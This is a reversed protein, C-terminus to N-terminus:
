HKSLDPKTRKGPVSASGLALQRGAKVPPPTMVSSGVGRQRVIVAPSSGASLSSRVPSSLAGGQGGQGKEAIIGAAVARARATAKIDATSFHVALVDIALPRFPHTVRNHLAFIELVCNYSKLAQVKMHMTTSSEFADLLPHLPQSCRIFNHSVDLVRLCRHKSATISRVLCALGTDTLLNNSLYLETLSSSVGLGQAINVLDADRVFCGHLSLVRLGPLQYNFYDCLINGTWLALDSSFKGVCDPAISEVYLENIRPNNIQVTTVLAQLFSPTYRGGLVRVQRISRCRSLAPLLDFEFSANKDGEIDRFILAHTKCGYTRLVASLMMCDAAGFSPGCLVTSQELAQKFQPIYQPINPKIGAPRYGIDRLADGGGGLPGDLSQSSALAGGMDADDVGPILSTARLPPAHERCARSVHARRRAAYVRRSLSKMKASVVHRVFRSIRSACLDVYRRRSERRAEEEVRQREVMEQYKRDRIWQVYRSVLYRFNYRLTTWAWERDRRIYAVMRSVSHKFTNNRDRIFRQIKIAAATMASLNDRRRHTVKRAKWSRYMCQLVVATRYLHARAADKRRKVRGFLVNRLFFSKALTRIKKVAQDQVDFLKVTAHIRHRKPCFKSAAIRRLDKRIDADYPAKVYRRYVATAMMQYHYRLAGYFYRLVRKTRYIRQIRKACITEFAFLARYKERDYYSLKKRTKLDLRNHTLKDELEAVVQKKINKIYGGTLFRQRWIAAFGKFTRNEHDLWQKHEASYSGLVTRAEADFHNNEFAMEAYRLAESPMKMEELVRALKLYARVAVDRYQTTDEAMDAQEDLRAEFVHYAEKALVIEGEAAFVEGLRLWTELRYFWGGFTDYTDLEEVALDLDVCYAYLNQYAQEWRGAHKPDTLCELSRAYLFMAHIENISVPVAELILSMNDACQNMITEREVANTMANTLHKGIVVTRYMVEFFGRYHPFTELVRRYMDLAADYSCYHELMSGFEHLIGPLEAISIYLGLKNICNSYHRYAAELYMQFGHTAYLKMACRAATLHVVYQPHLYESVERSHVLSQGHAGGTTTEELHPMAQDYQGSEYFNTALRWGLYTKMEANDTKRKRTQLTNCIVRVICSRWFARMVENPVRQEYLVMQQQEDDQQQPQEEEHVQEHEHKM